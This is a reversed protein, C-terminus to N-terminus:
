IYISEDLGLFHLVRKQDVSLPAALQRIQQGTPLRFVAVQVYKFLNFIAKATPHYLKRKGAGRLPPQGQMQQRIRKQFVLYVLLAIMLLYGLVQVRSPTKLYVEDVFFPDKLFSFNMEVHNQGKYTELIQIADMKRGRYMPPVTTVLVFRSAKRVAQEFRDEDQEILHFVVRFREIRQTIENKKPRGTKGKSVEIKEVQCATRHFDYSTEKQWQSLAKEADEKCHFLHNTWKRQAQQIKQYEEERRKELTKRKKKELANSQVVIRRVPHDYYNSAIEQVRYTTPQPNTTQISWPESWQEEQGDVLDLAEKIIKLNQSGRTILFGGAKEVQDLTGKSMAAADAVYIFESIDMKKLQADLKGLVNVNWTKDSTNGDHVDAHIAIGDQNVIMGYQFQKAGRRDRSYGETIHLSQDDPVKELQEGSAGEEQTAYMGYVSKSTTDSHFIHLADGEKEWLQLTFDSFVQHVNAEAIRDLHRGIVDDNFYSAEVQPSILKKIDIQHAWEELHVLAQRGTLIDLVILQVVEGPSVKCRSDCTVKEDFIQPIKLDQIIHNVLNLYSVPYVSELQVDIASM